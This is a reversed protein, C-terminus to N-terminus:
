LLKRHVVKGPFFSGWLLHECALHLAKIVWGYTSFFQKPFYPYSITKIQMQGPHIHPFPQLGEDGKGTIRLLFIWLNNWFAHHQVGEREPLPVRLMVANDTSTVSNGAICGDSFLQSYFLMWPLSSGMHIDWESERERQNWAGRPKLKGRKQRSRRGGNNLKERNKEYRREAM